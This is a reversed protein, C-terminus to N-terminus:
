ADEKKLKKKESEEFANVDGLSKEAMIVYTISFIKIIGIKRIFNRIPKNSLIEYYIYIRIIKQSPYSM